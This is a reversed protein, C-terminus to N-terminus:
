NPRKNKRRVVTGTENTEMDAEDGCQGDLERLFDVLGVTNRRPGTVRGPQEAAGRAAVINQRARAVSGAKMLPEPPAVMNQRARSVSGPKKTLAAGAEEGTLNRYADQRHKEKEAQEEVQERVADFNGFPSLPSMPSIKPANMLLGPSSVTSKPLPWDITTNSRRSHLTSAENEAPELSTFIQAHRTPSGCASTNDDISGPTPEKATKSSAPGDTRSYNSESYYQLGIDQQGVNAELDVVPQSRESKPPTNWSDSGDRRYLSAAVTSGTPVRPGALVGRNKPNRNDRRLKWRRFLLYLALLLLSAGALVGVLIGGITTGKIPKRDALEVYSFSSAETTEATETNTYTSSTTAVTANSTASHAM